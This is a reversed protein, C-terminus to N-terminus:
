STLPFYRYSISAYLMRPIINPQVTANLISFFFVITIFVNMQEFFKFITKTKSLIVNIIKWFM